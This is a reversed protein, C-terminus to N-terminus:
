LYQQEKNSTQFRHGAWTLRSVNRDPMTHRAAPFGTWAALAWIGWRFGRRFLILGAHRLALSASGGFHAM